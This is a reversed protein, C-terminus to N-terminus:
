REHTAMIRIKASGPPPQFDFMSVPLQPNIQWNTFTAEYQPQGPQSTYTIAYRAPLHWADHTIWFQIRMDKNSALIHFYEKGDITVIGLFRLQDALALLDDTFTPYFFDAAPFEVQYWKNVSDIMDITHDPVDLLGYNHEDQSYYALKGAHYWLQRHGHPGYLNVLMKDNGSMYVDYNNFQKTMLGQTDLADRSSFVNFSCSELEGIVDSMRDVILIALSDHQKAQAGARLCLLVGLSYIIIRKM